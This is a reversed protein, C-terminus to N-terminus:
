SPRTCLTALARAAWSRGAFLRVRSIVSVVAMLSASALMVTSWCSDSMPTSRDM